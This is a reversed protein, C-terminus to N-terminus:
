PLLRVTSSPIHATDISKPSQTPLPVTHPSPHCTQCTSDPLTHALGLVNQRLVCAANHEKLSKLAMAVESADVARGVWAVSTCAWPHGLPLLLPAQPLRRLPRPRRPDARMRGRSSPTQPPDNATWYCKSRLAGDARPWAHNGTCSHPTDSTPQVARHELSCQAM